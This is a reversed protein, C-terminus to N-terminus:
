ANYVAVIKEVADKVNVSDSVTTSDLGRVAAQVGVKDASHECMFWLCQIQFLAMRESSFSVLKEAFAVCAKKNSGVAALAAAITIHPFVEEWCSPAEDEVPPADNESARVASLIEDLVAACMSDGADNRGTLLSVISKKVVDDDEGIAEQTLLKGLMGSEGRKCLQVALRWFTPFLEPTVCWMSAAACIESVGLGGVALWESFLVCSSQLLSLAAGKSYSASPAFSVNDMDMSVGQFSTDLKLPTRKRDRRKSQPEITPSAPTEPLTSIRSLNLERFPTPPTGSFVPIVLNTTWDLLIKAQTSWQVTGNRTAEKHLAFRGYTECARLVLEVDAESHYSDSSLIREACVTGQELASELATCATESLMIAHRAAASSPDPGRLINELVQLAVDPALRPVQVKSKRKKVNMPSVVGFATVISASLSTAVDETMGWLCLLAVHPTMNFDNDNDQELRQTIQASLGKVSKHPLRGACRLIASCVRHADDTNIAEFHANVNALVAGSFADLLFEQSPENGPAELGDEIQSVALFIHTLLVYM